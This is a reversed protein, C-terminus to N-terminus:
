AGVRQARALRCRMPSVWASGVETGSRSRSRWCPAQEDISGNTVVYAGDGLLAVDRVSETLERTAGSASDPDYAGVTSRLGDSPRSWWGLVDGSGDWTLEAPSSGEPTRLVAEASGDRLLSVAGETSFALVLDDRPPEAAPQRADAENASCAGAALASLVLLGACRALLSTGPRTRRAGDIM